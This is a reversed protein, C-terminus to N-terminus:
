PQKEDIVLTFAGGGGDSDVAVVYVEASKPLFSWTVMKTPNCIPGLIGSQGQSGCATEVADFTCGVSRAFVYVFGYFTPKLHFTNTAGPKAEFAWYLQPAKLSSAVQGTGGSKSSGCTLKPFEDSAANTDGSLEAHGDSFTISTALLCRDNLPASGQGGLGGQGGPAGGSGGM